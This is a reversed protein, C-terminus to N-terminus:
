GTASRTASAGTVPSVTSVPVVGSPNVPSIRPTILSPMAGPNGIIMARSVDSSISRTPIQCPM